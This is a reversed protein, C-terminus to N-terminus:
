RNTHIIQTKESLDVTGDIYDMYHTFTCSLSHESGFLFSCNYKTLGNSGTQTRIAGVVPVLAPPVTSSM